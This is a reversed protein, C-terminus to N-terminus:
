GFLLGLFEVRVSANKTPVFSLYSKLPIQKLTLNRPVLCNIM